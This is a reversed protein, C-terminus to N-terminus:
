AEISDSDAMYPLSGIIASTAATGKFDLPVDLKKWQELTDSKINNQAIQAESDTIIRNNRIIEGAINMIRDIQMAERGFAHKEVETRSGIMQAIGTKEPAYIELIDLAQAATSRFKEFESIISTVNTGSLEEENRCIEVVGRRQLLEIIKKSDTLLAILEIKKMKLKAM